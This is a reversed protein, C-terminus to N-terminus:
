GRGADRGVQLGTLQGLARLNASVAAAEAAGYPSFPVLGLRRLTPLGALAELPARAPWDRLVVHALGQFATRLPRSAPRCQPSAASTTRHHSPFAPPLSAQRPPTPLSLLCIHSAHQDYTGAAWRSGAALRFLTLSTLGPPAGGWAFLPRTETLDLQAISMGRLHPLPCPPTYPLTDEYPPTLAAAGGPARPSFAPTSPGPSPSSTSTSSHALSATSCTRSTVPPSRLTDPTPYTHTSHHHHHGLLAAM